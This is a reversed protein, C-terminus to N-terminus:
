NANQIMNRSCICMFDFQSAPYINMLDKEGYVTGFRHNRNNRQRNVKLCITLFNTFAIAHIHTGLHRKPLRHSM